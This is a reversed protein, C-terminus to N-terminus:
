NPRAVSSCRQWELRHERETGGHLETACLTLRDDGEFHVRRVQESGLANPNLSFQVAHVVHPVGAVLRLTFPGAYNFHSEFAACQEGVTARRPSAASMAPRAARSISANMWGDASYLLLGRADAGFPLTPVHGGGSDVAWRHLSWAGLLHQRVEELQPVTHPMAM